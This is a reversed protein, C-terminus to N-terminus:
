QNDEKGAGEQAAKWEYFVRLNEQIGKRMWKYDPTNDYDKTFRYAGFGGKYGEDPMYRAHGMIAGGSVAYQEFNECLIYKYPTNGRIPRTGGYSQEIFYDIYEPCNEEFVPMIGDICLLKHGKGEPDSM